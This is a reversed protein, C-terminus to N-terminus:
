APALPKRGVLLQHGSRGLAVLLAQSPLEVLLWWAALLALLLVGDPRQWRLRFGRLPRGLRANLWLGLSATSEAPYFMSRHPRPVEFGTAELAQRLTRPTFHFLHQPVLLPLWWARFVRRWAGDFDPVEVVCAGGPKLLAHVARLAAIPDEHHELSQFLTVVDFSGAPLAATDLSGLHYRVAAPALAGAVSAADRELGHAECGTARQAAALFTGYGCGVDLLRQGRDLGTAARVIRTRLRAVWRGAPGAQLTRAARGAYVGRYYDALRAPSPRPRTAVLGCAACRAIAFVGSKGNLRDRVSPLLTAYDTGGCLPCPPAVLLEPPWASM